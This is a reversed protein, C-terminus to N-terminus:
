SKPKKIKQLKGNVMAVFSEGPALAAYKKNFEEQPMNPKNGSNFKQYDDRGIKYTDYNKVSKDGELKVRAIAEILEDKNDYDSVTIVDPGLMDDVDAQAKIKSQLSAMKEERTSDETVDTVYEFDKIIKNEAAIGARINNTETNSYDKGGEGKFTRKTSSSPEAKEAIKRKGSVKSSGASMMNKDWSLNAMYRKSAAKQNKDILEKKEPDIDDPYEGYVSNQWQEMTLGMDSLSIGLENGEQAFSGLSNPPYTSTYNPQGPEVGNADAVEEGDSISDQWVSLMEEENGLVGSFYASSEIDKLYEQKIGDKQVPYRILQEYGDELGTIIEGTVPHADGNTFAEEKIYPSLGTEEKSFKDWGQQILGNIDAKENFLPKNPNAYLESGNLFSGSDPIVNGDEDKEPAWYYIAGDKEVIRVDGNNYLKNLVNKNDMSGTSSFTGDKISQHQSAASNILTVGNSKFQPILAEIKKNALMAERQSMDGSQVMNLNDVYQEIKEDWFQVISNNAQNSGPKTFENVKDRLVSEKEINELELNEAQKKQAMVTKMINDSTNLIQNSVERSARARVDFEKSIIRQPNSYSGKQNEAM